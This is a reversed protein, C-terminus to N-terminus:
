ERQKRHESRAQCKRKQRGTDGSIGVFFGGSCENKLFRKLDKGKLYYIEVM